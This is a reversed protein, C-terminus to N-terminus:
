DEDEPEIEVLTTGLEKKANINKELSLLMAPLLLLNMFMGFLLSLSTLIGLAVTGGFSSFAFIAFGAFLAIATYIISPGAEMLSEPIAAKMDWNNKKLAHRYKALYHITFDVVIGYAISFIIITSPKLRIGFFGMIGFTMILPILNPILSIVVMKWSFFLFAMMISIIILASVMSQVLNDILYDNGKLFIASTGTIKVDYQDKPFISDIKNQVAKTLVKMEVSGVDAMQVSVRALRYTSDVMSKLINGQGDGKPLYEVIGAIDVVNPVIYYKEEGYNMGQNAFKIFDVVSTAKSLEPFQLLEKQLRNIKQLTVYDKVGDVRKTDIRIEFPLAGKLHKEFFKLDKYVPDTEPLDDVVYGLNKVQMSGYISAALLLFTIFYISKRQYHVLDYCKVLVKNLRVSSLHKTHKPLPPPLYSYVVPIFVLSIIYILMIVIGSIVSFQDLMASGSFSFVVFGVATTVNTLFLALGNKSILRLLALIKNGHKTFEQHYVNLLYICNQVGIIVMLPPLIGTLITIKYGFLALLGMTAVVGIIVVVLSFIVASLFRFFLFIFIATVLISLYTFIKIEDAVKSSMMTRVYPLGSFHMEVKHKEGFARAKAEIGKVLPIRAKSDLQAKKLNVALLVLDTEPNYLLGNYFKLTKVFTQFSDLESQTKPKHTIIPKVELKQLSDNRVLHYAKTISIVKEVGEIGEIENGLDYFDNFFGLKFADKSQTGIVLINGDEGFTEKFKVYEVYDTDSQPVIKAFDYTMQVKTAFYGFFITLVGLSVLLWFRNRICFTGIANWM